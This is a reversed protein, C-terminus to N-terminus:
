IKCIRMCQHDLLPCTNNQNEVLQFASQVNQALGMKENEVLRFAAQVNQHFTGGSEM